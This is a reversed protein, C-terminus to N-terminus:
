KPTALFGHNTGSKDVYWGVIDNHKNIGTAVTIRDADPEDIQQWTIGEFFPHQLLFGHTQGSSDVFSGVIRDDVTIGLFQTSTSNPYSLIRTHGSAAKRVFGEMVGSPSTLYGALDGHGNIANVILHTGTGPPPNVPDFKGTALSMEFSGTQAGSKYYGVAIDADNLGLLETSNGRAHPNEYAFWFKRVYAFGFTAKKYPDWYFGAVTRRDNLTAATTQTASPWQVKRYNNPQYPPRVYYATSPNSRKGSKFYGVIVSNNNIGLLRNFSTYPKDDLTRFSLVVGKTTGVPGSGAFAPLASTTGPTSSPAGCAALLATTALVFTRRVLIMPTFYAM